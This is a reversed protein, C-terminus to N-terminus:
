GRLTSLYREGSDPFITVVTTGARPPVRCIEASAWAAAGSSVGVPLGLSRTLRAATDSAAADPVTVIEDILDTDTIDSVYGAGIGPIGHPGGEGGSLVASREPEVAVVRVDGREKLFRATGSLTGGTGVGVVLVDVRGDTDAWIEPGTTEYHARVNAENRDQHPVWSGPTARQLAEAHEWAALLGDQHPVLVIEAGLARLLLRREETANDPMVVVCRHGRPVCLAALSIGTSGSSCEIVTGGTAPLLGSREAEAVMWRAARDKVSALPNLMELKALLRVAPDVGEMRFELLPTGGVLDAVTRAVPRPPPDTTAPPTTLPLSM